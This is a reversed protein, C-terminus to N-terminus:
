QLWVTGEGAETVHERREVERWEVDRWERMGGGSRDHCGRCWYVSSHDAGSWLVTGALLLMTSLYIQCTYTM